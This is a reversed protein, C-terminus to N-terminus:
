FLDPALWSLWVNDVTVGKEEAYRVCNATGGASGDWLAVVGQSHDVMWENRRNLMRGISAGETQPVYVVEKASALIERYVQQSASPWRLEQGKFPVTALFPVGQRLAAVACAQDWGLAMGVILLSPRKQNLYGAATEVLHDFAPRSYGGVKEPRHGTAAIILSRHKRVLRARGLVSPSM